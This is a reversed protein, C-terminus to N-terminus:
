RMKKRLVPEWKQPFHELNEDRFDVIERFDAILALPRSGGGNAHPLTEDACDRLRIEGM